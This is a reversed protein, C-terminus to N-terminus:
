PDLLTYIMLVVIGVTICSDAINFVPWVQFDLFDVVYGFRLRDIFNSLAGGMVLGYAMQYNKGSNRLKLSILLLLIVCIFISTTIFFSNEQFLGFAIGTNRVFTVHFIGPLLPISAASNNSFYNLIIAKSIQDAAIVLFVLGYLSLRLRRERTKRRSRQM